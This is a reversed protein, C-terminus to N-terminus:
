EEDLARQIVSPRLGLDYELSHVIFDDGCGPYQRRLQAARQRIEDGYWAGPGKAQKGQNAM